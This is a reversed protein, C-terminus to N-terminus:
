LVSLPPGPCVRNLFGRALRICVRFHIRDSLSHLLGNTNESTKDMTDLGLNAPAAVCCLYLNLFSWLDNEDSASIPFTEFQNYM